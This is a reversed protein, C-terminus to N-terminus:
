GHTASMGTDDRFQLKGWCFMSVPKIIIIIISSSSSSSSSISSISSNSSSSSSIIIMIIVSFSIWTFTM